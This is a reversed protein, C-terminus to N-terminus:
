WGSELRLRVEGVPAKALSEREGLERDWGDDDDDGGVDLCNM